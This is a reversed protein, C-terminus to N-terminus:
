LKFVSSCNVHTAQTFQLFAGNRKVLVEELSQRSLHSANQVEDEACVKMYLSNYVVIRGKKRRGEM